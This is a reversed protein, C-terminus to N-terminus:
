YQGQLLQKHKFFAHSFLLCYNYSSHVKPLQHKSSLFGRPKRIRSHTYSYLITMTMFIYLYLSLHKVTTIYRKRITLVYMYDYTNLTFYTGLYERSYQNQQYTSYYLVYYLLQICHETSGMCHREYIYTIKSFLVHM